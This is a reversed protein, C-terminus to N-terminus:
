SLDSVVSVTTRTVIKHTEFYESGELQHTLKFLYAFMARKLILKINPLMKINNKTEFVLFCTELLINIKSM